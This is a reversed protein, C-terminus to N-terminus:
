KSRLLWYKLSIHESLIVFSRLKPLTSLIIRGFSAKQFNWIKGVHDDVRLVIKPVEWTLIPFQKEQVNVFLLSVVCFPKQVLTFRAAREVGFTTSNM